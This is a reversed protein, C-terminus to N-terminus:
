FPVDDFDQRPPLKADPADITDVETKAPGAAKKGLLRITDGRRITVIAVDVSDGGKTKAQFYELGGEILLPMGKKIYPLLKDIVAQNNIQVNHFHAISKREKAATTYYSNTALRFRAFRGGNAFELIKPDNVVNGQLFARNM